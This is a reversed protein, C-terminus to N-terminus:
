LILKIVESILVDPISTAKGTAPTLLSVLPNLSLKKDILALRSLAAVSIVASCVSTTPLPYVPEAPGLPGDPPYVPEALVTRPYVPDTATPNVPETPAPYVPDALVAAPYAPDVPAPYVPDALVAAPYAPDAPTKDPVLVVADTVVVLIAFPAVLLGLIVPYLVYRNYLIVVEAAHQTRNYVVVAVRVASAERKCVTSGEGFEPTMASTIVVPASVITTDGAAIPNLLSVDGVVLIGIATVLRLPAVLVIV